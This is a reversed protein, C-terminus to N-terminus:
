LHSKMPEFGLENLIPLLHKGLIERYRAYSFTSHRAWGEDGISSHGMWIRVIEPPCGSDLLANFMFRRHVGVPFGPLYEGMRPSQTGPRVEPDEGIFFCPLDQKPQYTLKKPSSAEKYKDMQERLGPPIWLLKAKFGADSDKDRIVVMGLRSIEEVDVYPTRIARVGTSYAFYWITYLTYRNHYQVVEDSTIPTKELDSRLRRVADQVVDTRPCLRKTVFRTEPAPSWIRSRFFSPDKKPLIDARLSSVSGAYIEQIKSLRRCAYFMPVKALYHEKGSIMSAAVIDKGTRAIMHTFLADRIKQVTLRGSPDTEKLLKKLSKRYEELDGPFVPVKTGEPFKLPSTNGPANCRRRFLADILYGLGAHDPVVLFENPKRSQETHDQQHAYRPFPVRMRFDIDFKAVDARFMAFGCEPHDAEARIWVLQSAREEDSATWLMVLLLIEIEAKQPSREELHQWASMRVAVDIEFLESALLARYGFPFMKNDRILQNHHAFMAAEFSGPSDEFGKSSDEWGFGEDDDDEDPCNDNDLAQREREAGGSSGGNGGGSGSDGGSDGSGNGNSGGTGEGSVDWHFVRGFNYHPDDEDGTESSTTRRSASRKRPEEKGYAQELFVAIYDVYQKSWDLGKNGLELSL